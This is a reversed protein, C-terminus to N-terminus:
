VAVPFKHNRENGCAFHYAPNPQLLSNKNHLPRFRFREMPQIVTVSHMAMECRRKIYHFSSTSPTDFKPIFPLDHKKTMREALSIAEIGSMALRM